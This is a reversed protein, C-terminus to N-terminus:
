RSGRPRGRRARRARRRARRRRRRSSSGGRARCRAAARDDDVRHDDRGHAALQLHHRDPEEGLVVPRDHPAARHEVLRELLEEGVDVPALEVREEDVHRGAGAVDRDREPLEERAGLREDDRRGCGAACCTATRAATIACFSPIRTTPTTSFMDHSTPEPWSSKPAPPPSASAASISAGTSACSGTRGPAARPRPRPCAPARPPAPRRLRALRDAGEGLRDLGTALALDALRQGDELTRSSRRFPLGSAGKRRRRARRRHAPATAARGRRPSARGDLYM